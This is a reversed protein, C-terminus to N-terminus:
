KANRPPPIPTLNRLEAEVLEADSLVEEGLEGGAKPPLAGSKLEVVKNGTESHEVDSIKQKAFILHFIFRNM